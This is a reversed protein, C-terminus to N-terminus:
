SSMIKNLISSLRIKSEHERMFREHGRSAIDQLLQERQLLFKIKEFLEIPGEFTIIEKDPAFFEEIDETYETMLLTKAAPVEFVRAKIQTSSEIANTNKSFNLAIKSSSHLWTMDEHALGYFYEMNVGQKKLYDTYWERDSNPRGCFTVDLNKEAHRPYLDINAHWGGLLINNYGIDKFKKIYRKEPTSCVTFNSCVQSSFTDFRWTDDCFWNFTRTRGSETEKIIDEWPEHPTLGTDGTMCCFILDPKIREIISNLDKEEPDVTDYFYVDHNLSMLPIYVNWYGGDLRPRGGHVLTKNHVLIIKM